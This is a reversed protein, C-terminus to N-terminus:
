HGQAAKWALYESPRLGYRALVGERIRRLEEIVLAQVASQEPQPVNDAVAQRIQLFPDLAPQLFITRITQKIFDRWALRLPDPEALWSTHKNIEAFRQLYPLHVMMFFSQEFADGIRSAKDLLM